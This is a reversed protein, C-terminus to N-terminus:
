LRLVSFSDIEIEGFSTQVATSKLATIIKPALKRLKNTIIILERVSAINKETQSTKGDYKQSNM